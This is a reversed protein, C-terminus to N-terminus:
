KKDLLLRLFTISVKGEVNALISITLDSRLKERWLKFKYGILLGDSVGTSGLIITVTQTDDSFKVVLIIAGVFLALVMGVSIRFIGKNKNSLSQLSQKLGERNLEINPEGEGFPLERPLYSKLVREFSDM